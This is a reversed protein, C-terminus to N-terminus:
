GIYSTEDKERQALEPNEEEVQEQGNIMGLGELQEKADKIGLQEAVKDKQEVEKKAEVSVEKFDKFLKHTKLITEIEKKKRVLFPLIQTLVIYIDEKTTITLEFRDSWNKNKKSLEKHYINGCELFKKIEELTEKDKSYLRLQIYEKGNVNIINLNGRHDFLGAVYSWDVM